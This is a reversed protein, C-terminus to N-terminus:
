PQCHAELWTALNGAVPPYPLPFTPPATRVPPPPHPPNAPAPVGAGVDTAVAPRDAALTQLDDDDPNTRFTSTPDIVMRVNERGRDGALVITAAIDARVLAVLRAADAADLTVLPQGAAPPQAPTLSEYYQGFACARYMRAFPTTPIPGAIWENVLLIVSEYMGQQYLMTAARLALMRKRLEAPAAAGGALLESHSLLRLVGSPDDIAPDNYITTAYDLLLTANGPDLAIADQYAREAEHYKGLITNARAWMAKASVDRLSTYAQEAITQAAHRQEDTPSSPLDPLPSFTKVIANQTVLVVAAHAFALAGVTATLSYALMFGLPTFYMLITIGILESSSGTPLHALRLFISNFHSVQTLGLALVGGTLAPLLNDIVKDLKSSPRVFTGAAAGSAKLADPDTVPLGYLYGALCGVVFLAVGLADVVVWRGGGLNPAFPIGVLGITALVPIVGLLGPGVNQGGERAGFVTALLVVLVVFGAVGLGIAVAPPMALTPVPNSAPQASPKRVVTSPTRKTAPAPKTPRAPKKAPSVVTQGNGPAIHSAPTPTAASASEPLHACAILVLLAVIVSRVHCVSHLFHSSAGPATM